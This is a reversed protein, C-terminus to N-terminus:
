PLSTIRVGKGSVSAVAKLATCAIHSDAPARTVWSETDSWSAANGVHQGVREGRHERIVREPWHFVATARQAVHRADRCRIWTHPTINRQGISIGNQRCHIGDGCLMGLETGKNGLGISRRHLSQERMAPFHAALM